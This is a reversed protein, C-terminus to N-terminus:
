PVATPSRCPQQHRSIPPDFLPTTVSHIRTRSRFAVGAGSGDETVEVRRPSAGSCPCSSTLAPRGRNKSRIKTHLSAFLSRRSTRGRRASCARTAALNVFVLGESWGHREAPSNTSRRLPENVLGREIAARGNLLRLLLNRGGRAYACTGKSEKVTFQVKAEGRGGRRVMSFMVTLDRQLVM